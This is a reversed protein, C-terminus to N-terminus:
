LQVQALNDLAARLARERKEAEDQWRAPSAPDDWMAIWAAAEEAVRLLAEHANHAAAIHAADDASETFQRAVETYQYRGTSAGIRWLRERGKREAEWRGETAAQHLRRLEELVQM